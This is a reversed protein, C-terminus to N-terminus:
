WARSEWRSEHLKTECVDRDEVTDPSRRRHCSTVSNPVLIEKSVCYTNPLKGAQLFFLGNPHERTIAVM